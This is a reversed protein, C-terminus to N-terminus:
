FSKWTIVMKDPGETFMDFSNAWRMKIAPYVEMGNPCDIVLPLKRKDESISMLESIFDDISKFERNSVNAQEKEYENFLCEIERETLSNPHRSKDGAILDNYEITVYFRGELSLNNWWERAFNRNEM